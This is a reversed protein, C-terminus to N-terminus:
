APKKLWGKVRGSLAKYIPCRDYVSLFLFFGGAALLWYNPGSTAGLYFFLLAPAIRLIRELWSLQRAFEKNEQVAGFFALVNDPTMAGTRRTVELGKHYGIMTPIGKVGLSRLLEANDDANIKWLEVQGKYAEEAKKLSPAMMKCPGCWPAWFEAVIPRPSNKIKADFASRKM